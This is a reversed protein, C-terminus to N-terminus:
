RAHKRSPHINNFHNELLKEKMKWVRLVQLQFINFKATVDQKRGRQDHVSIVLFCINESQLNAQGSGTSLLDYL